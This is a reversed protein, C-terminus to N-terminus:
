ACSPSIEEYSRGEFERMLLVRRHRPDLAAIQRCIEGVSYEPAEPEVAPTWAELPEESPRRRADRFRDHCLNRAIALLWQIEDRPKVGRDLATYANLFTTQTVDEADSANRVRSLAYAYVAPRNRRYLSEFFREETELAASV